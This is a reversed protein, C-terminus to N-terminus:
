TLHRREGPLPASSKGLERRRADLSEAPSQHIAYARARISGSGRPNQRREVAVRTNRASGSFLAALGPVLIAAGATTARTPPSEFRKWKQDKGEMRRPRLIREFDLRVREKPRAYGTLPICHM